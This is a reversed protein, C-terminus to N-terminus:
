SVDLTVRHWGTSGKPAPPATRETQVDGNGDTARAVVSHSGSREPTWDLHWLTWANRSLSPKLEADSWTRGGDTSVEVRAIGRDGAFAIGAVSAPQGAKGARAVDIRAATQYPARDDWGRRQWYGKVDRDVIEIRKIWKVNKMGYIGPVILRLPSGHTADLPEGNMEYALLADPDLAREVPISDTYEDFATLFVDIAGPKLGAEDLITRLSVGRWAANGILDGGVFNSICMLTAFEERPLLARLEALTYSRPREVLGGIELTWDDPPGDPDFVNKSIHYFDNVPTIEKSLGDIEPFVGSGGSVRSSDVIGLADVISKILEWGVVAVGATALANLIARRSALSGVRSALPEDREFRQLLVHLSAGYVLGALLLSTSALVPGPRWGLGFPGGGTLPAVVTSAALWVLAGFALGRAVSSRGVRNAYVRGLLALIAVYALVCGFFAFRKAYPGLLAVGFEVIAIPMVSFIADAVREPVFPARLAFRLAASIALTVLGAGLGAAVGRDSASLSKPSNANRLNLGLLDGQM